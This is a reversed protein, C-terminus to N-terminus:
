QAPPEPLNDGALYVTYNSGDCTVATANAPIPQAPALVTSGDPMETASAAITMM